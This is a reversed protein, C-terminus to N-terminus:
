PEYVRVARVEVTGTRASPVMAAYALAEEESPAELLYYGILQEKTEAFPGDTTLARGDRVRVTTATTTPHLPSGGRLAGKAALTETLRAYEQRIAEYAEPSMAALDAENSHILLTYLM